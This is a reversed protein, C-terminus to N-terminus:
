LLKIQEDIKEKRKLYTEEHKLEIKLSDDNYAEKCISKLVEQTGKEYTVGGDTANRKIFARIIQAQAPTALLAKINELATLDENFSNEVDRKFGYDTNKLMFAYMAVRETDTIPYNFETYHSKILLTRLDEVTKENKIEANRTDKKQLETLQVQEASLTVKDSSEGKQGYPIVLKIEYSNWFGMILAKKYGSEIRSNDREVDERYDTMTEEWEEDSDDEDREPMEAFHEFDYMNKEYLVYGMEELKDFVPSNGHKLLLCGLASAEIAQNVYGDISKSTFCSINTCRNEDYEQFLSSSGCRYQCSECEAKDFKAYELNKFQNSIYNRVESVKKDTWLYYTSENAHREKCILSQNEADLKCLEQAHSIQLTKNDLLEVLEPVLDNLKIRLRIFGISKGFRAALEEFSVGRKHLENFARAEDMPAVDRRQLNETIMADFAEEDTMERVISPITDLGAIKSARYRRAGCVVEYVKLKSKKRLTIPQLLGQKLISESLEILSEENFSKRPNLQSERIDEIPIYEIQTM